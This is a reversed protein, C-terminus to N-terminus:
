ITRNRLLKPHSSAEGRFGFRKWIKTQGREVDEDVERRGEVSPRVLWTLDSVGAHYLIMVTTSLLLQFIWPATALAVGSISFMRVYFLNKQTNATALRFLLIGVATIWLSHILISRLRFGQHPTCRNADMEEM